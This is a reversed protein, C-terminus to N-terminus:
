IAGTSLNTGHAPGISSVSRVTSVTGEAPTPCATLQIPTDSPDAQIAVNQYETGPALPYAALSLLQPIAAILPKFDVLAQEAGQELEITLWISAAPLSWVYWPEGVSVTIQYPGPQLAGNVVALGMLITVDLSADPFDKIRKVLNLVVQMLGPQFTVEPDNRFYLSSDHQLVETKVFTSLMKRVGGSPQAIVQCVNLDVQVAISGLTRVYPGARAAITYATTVLPQVLLSGALDVAIGNLTVTFPTLPGSVVWRVASEGFPGILAPTATLQQLKVKALTELASQDSNGTGIPLMNIGIHCCLALAYPPLKSINHCNDNADCLQGNRHRCCRRRRADDATAKVSCILPTVAASACNAM